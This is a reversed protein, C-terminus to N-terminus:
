WLPLGPPVDPRPVGLAGAQPSFPVTDQACAAGDRPPDGKVLYAAIVADACASKGLTTHGWGDVATPRDLTRWLGGTAM